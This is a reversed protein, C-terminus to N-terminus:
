NVLYIKYSVKLELSSSKKANLGVRAANFNYLLKVYFKTTLSAEGGRGGGTSPTDEDCLTTEGLSWLSDGRYKDSM